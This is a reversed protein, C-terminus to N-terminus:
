GSVRRVVAVADAAHADRALMEDIGARIPCSRARQAPAGARAPGRGHDGLRADRRVRYRPLRAAVALFISIGKVACPNIMAVLGREFSRWTRSRAPQRLHASPDGGPARGLAREIYDAMHRGIAVVGASARWWSPPTRIPIGVPRASLSSSRRTRWTSWAARPRTTRKACCARPGPRRLLGAGLRAPVRPDRPAAGARAAGPGGRGPHRHVRSPPVARRARRGACSGAPTAPARGLQNLWVLNSRTAGGRPPAYSANATLLIRMRKPPTRSKPWCAACKKTPFATSNGLLDQYDGGAQEIEKLEIAKALEAVTFEGSYVVELSLDVGYIQRVRSLLQVALLSHGGLEFFNDHIGVSPLNLLAAWLEALDREIPTRPPDVASARPSPAGRPPAYASWFPPPIACNPPSATSRLDICLKHLLRQRRGILTAPAATLRGSGRNVPAACGATAASAASLTSRREHM